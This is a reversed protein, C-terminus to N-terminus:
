KENKKKNYPAQVFHFNQRTVYYDNQTNEAIM